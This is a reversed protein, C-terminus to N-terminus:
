RVELRRENVQRLLRDTEIPLPTDLHRLDSLRRYGPPGAAGRLRDHRPQLIAHRLEQARLGDVGAGELNDRQWDQQEFRQVCRKEHVTARLRDQPEVVAQRQGGCPEDCVIAIACHYNAVADGVGNLQPPPRRQEHRTDRSTGGEDHHDRRQVRGRREIRADRRQQQDIGLGTRVDVLSTQPTEVPQRPGFRVQDRNERPRM